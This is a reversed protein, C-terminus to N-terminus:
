LSNILSRSEVSFIFEADADSWIELAEVLAERGAEKNGEAAHVKAYVLKARGNAPFVKLLGELRERSHDIAGADLYLEALAVYLSSMSLNDQFLQIFSQGLLESARELHAIAVDFKEDWIAVRAMQMEVFPQMIPPLQDQTELSRNVWERYADRDNAAEYIDAYTFNMYADMPAQLQATIEDAIAIAEDTRGLLVLLSSQQNEISMLRVMPPMFEKAIENIRAHLALASAIQGRVYAVEAHAALVQVRQQPSLEESLQGDLREQAQKFYGRRAELRALGLESELPSDSLIAADELAGQAAELDGLAQYVSALQLHAEGDDPEQDLFNRLYGAAAAFDGRQQELEAQQRFIGFDKPNIDLLHEYAVSARQLSEETGRIRNLRAMAQFAETSNPQVQTWIEVVREGREYDGDFIYRNAKLVFKSTESLRYSNKLAQSAAARASELDNSLYHAISLVGSAEAFRPDIEVASQLEAIGQPFDNNVDLAVQGNTFHEIAELSDSFHQGIPDDSQNDSPEVELYDLVAVTVDDVAALWDGGTVSHSGIEAGSAADILTVDVAITGDVEAFSGVILAATHRDRAIEVRLGQPEDIFSPYGKNRLENRMAPSDFPTEVTIVPSVRNLDHALMLPLGYSLWDLDSNGSENRWFFGIVEKHYGQRAIEFEQVVGTEDSIRVTETAAEVELLPSLFYLAGLALLVNLSIAVRESKTWQDKGRAGHNYSFLIVAPLMVLMVVFIYSTLTGPLNFRETVWDGLEIVLWTAAIYMGVFQPVRRHILSESISRKETM